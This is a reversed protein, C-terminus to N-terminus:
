PQKAEENLRAAAERLAEATDELQREFWRAIERVREPNQDGSGSYAFFQVAEEATCPTVTPAPPKQSGYISGSIGQEKTLGAPGFYVDCFDGGESEGGLRIVSNGAALLRKAAAGHSRLYQELSSTAAAMAAVLAQHKENAAAQEALRQQKARQQRQAEATEAASKAATYSSAIADWDSM